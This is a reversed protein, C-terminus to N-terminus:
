SRRPTATCAGPGVGAAVILTAERIDQWIEAVEQDLGPPDLLYAM